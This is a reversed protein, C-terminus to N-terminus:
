ELQVSETVPPRPSLTIVNDETLLLDQSCYSPIFHEKCIQLGDLVVIVGSSFQFIMNGSGGGGGGGGQGAEGEAEAEGTAVAIADDILSKLHRLNRVPIGNFTKLLQNRMMEYGVNCDNAIVQSLLVAEEGAVTQMADSLQLIRYEEACREFDHMHEPHFEAELYERTLAVWVLGGVVLYSPNGGVISGRSGTGKNTNADVVNKQLLIRPVLRQPVWLPATVSMYQGGRLISLTVNDGPFLTTFHYNLQVREKFAGERFPISGDNAVKINDVALIIDTKKLVAAAPALPVTDLVMVGSDQKSSPFQLFWIGNGTANGNGDSYSYSAENEMHQLRAGLGCVGSFTGHRAVDDLFHRIVNAPVVYGINETDEASLSQFAVGIVKNESDVVPGGSNGPNIAADIQIALLEASAQAYEQMEIRSVVGSSISISDGGVPFGIVSVNELLDPVDGLELAETDTWFSPDEVRLLALDCEHGLALVSALFKRESQRKKVQILSGYEVAHANTLIFEGSIMFGTSTSFDQKKRQWPMGFSPESHTCYIRVVGNLIDDSDQAEPDDNEEDLTALTDIDVDNDGSDMSEIIRNVIEVIAARRGADIKRKVQPNSSSIPNSVIDQQNNVSNGHMSKMLMFGNQINFPRAGTFVFGRCSISCLFFLGLFRSSITIM